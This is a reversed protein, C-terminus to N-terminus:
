VFIHQTQHVNRSFSLITNSIESGKLEILRHRLQLANSPRITQILFANSLKHFSCTLSMDPLIQEIPKGLFIGYNGLCNLVMTTASGKFRAM